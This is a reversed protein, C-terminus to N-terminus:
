RDEGVPNAECTRKFMFRSICNTSVNREMFSGALTTTTWILIGVAIIYKRAYRDGLYGFLPAFTIYSCVFVVNM